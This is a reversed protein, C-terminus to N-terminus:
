EGQKSTMWAMAAVHIQAKAELPQAPRGSERSAIELLEEEWDQVPESQRPRM